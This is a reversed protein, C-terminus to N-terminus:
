SMWRRSIRHSLREGYSFKWVEGNRLSHAVPRLSIRAPSKEEAMLPQKHREAVFLWTFFAADAANKMDEGNRLSYAVPRLSIRAPSKEEAMLPQKHREAVFLWTFFAADAANKM